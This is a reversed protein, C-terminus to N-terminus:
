DRTLSTIAFDKNLKIDWQGGFKCKADDVEFMGTGETEKEAAGGECGIAALAETMKKAEEASPKDDALAATASLAMAALAVTLNKVLM